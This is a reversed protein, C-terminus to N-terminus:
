SCLYFPMSMFQPYRTYRTAQEHNHLNFHDHNEFERYLVCKTSQDAQDFTKTFVQAEVTLFISAMIRFNLFSNGLNSLPFLRNLAVAEVWM